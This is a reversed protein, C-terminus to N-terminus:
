EAFHHLAHFGGRSFGLDVQRALSQEDGSAVAADAMTEGVHCWREAKGM